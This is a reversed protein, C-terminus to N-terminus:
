ASLSKLKKLYNDPSVAKYKDVVRKSSPLTEEITVKCKMYSRKSEALDRKVQECEFALQSYSLVAQAKHKCFAVTLGVVVLLCVLSVGIVTTEIEANTSM